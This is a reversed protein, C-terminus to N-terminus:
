FLSKLQVQIRSKRFYFQIKVAWSHKCAQLQQLDCFNNFSNEKGKFVILELGTTEVFHPYNIIFAMMLTLENTCVRSNM